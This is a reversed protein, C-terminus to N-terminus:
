RALYDLLDKIADKMVQDVKGSEVARRLYAIIVGRVAPFNAVLSNAGDALSYGALIENVKRELPVDGSELLASPQLRANRVETLFGDPLARNQVVYKEVLSPYGVAITAYAEALWRRLTAPDCDGAGIRKALSDLDSFTDLSKLFRDYVGIRRSFTDLGFLASRLYAQVLYPRGELNELLPTVLETEPDAGVKVTAQLYIGMLGNPTGAIIETPRFIEPDTALLERYKAILSRQVQAWFRPDSDSAGNGEHRLQLSFNVASCAFYRVVRGRDHLRGARAFLEDYREMTRQPDSEVCAVGACTSLLIVLKAGIRERQAPETSDPGLEAVIDPVDAFATLDGGWASTITLLAQREAPSFSNKKGDFSFGQRELIWSAFGAGVKVLALRMGASLPNRRALMLRRGAVDKWFEGLYRYVAPDDHMTGLTGLTVDMLIRLPAVRGRVINAATIQGALAEMLGQARAYESSATSRWVRYVARSIALVLRDEDQKDTIPMLLPDDGLDASQLVTEIAVLRPNVGQRALEQVFRRQEESSTASRHAREVLCAVAMDRFSQDESRALEAIIADQDSSLLVAHKIAELQIPVTRDGEAYRILEGVRAADLVGGPSTERLWTATRHEYHRDYVFRIAREDGLEDETLIGEDLLREYTTRWDREILIMDQSGCNPCRFGDFGGEGKKLLAWCDENGCRYTQNAPMDVPPEFVIREIAPDQRAAGEPLRSDRHQWMAAVLAELFPWDKRRHVRRNAEFGEFILGIDLERPLAAPQGSTGRYAEAVMRLMLPDRLLRRTRPSLNEITADIDFHWAYRSFAAELEAGSFLALTPLALQEAGEPRYLLAEHRAELRPQMHGWAITRCSLVFRLEYPPGDRYLDLIEVLLRAPDHFENIADIFILVRKDAFDDRGERLRAIVAPLDYRPTAFEAGYGEPDINRGEQFVVVTERDGPPNGALRWMLNTKGHGSDGLILLCPFRDQQCFRAFHGDEGQFSTRAIYAERIVKGGAAEMSERQERTQKRLSQVEEWDFTTKGAAQERVPEVALRSYLEDAHELFREEDFAWRNGLIYKILNIKRTRRSIRTTELLMFDVVQGRADYVPESLFCLPVAQGAGSELYIEGPTLEGPPWECTPFSGPDPGRMEQIRGDGSHFLLRYRNLPELLTMLADISRGTAALIRPLDKEDPDLGPHFYENRLEILENILKGGRALNQREPHKFYFADLDHFYGERDERHERRWLLLDRLFNNWHGLSPRLLNGHLLNGIREDPAGGRALHAAYDAIAGAACFKLIATFCRIAARFQRGADGGDLAAYEAYASATPYPHRSVDLYQM